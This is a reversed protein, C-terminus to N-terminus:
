KNKREFILYKALEIVTLNMVALVVILGFESMSPPSLSLLEQLPPVTLSAILMVVSISLSVLLYKNSFLKIKWIPKHLNKISFSFFISDISLAIFMFTRIEEIPLKLYLLFFYLLMLIVGTTIAIIMILKKLNPTLISKMSSDRPDRKMLDDEKPEFAFAFNMFGEELINTWLIQAPLLPLPAGIILAGGVVFIESFSTSLLYAVIKKLNDLIRRGEEISNVIVNFGNNILVMDSAEKAVETGSGLAIGIDASRLAPADNIGDGTMAVIQGDSKLLKAIRLKQSPLVRAFVDTTKLANLLENDNLESIDDGLLVKTGERKIGAEQAIKGATAPNDGTLMIVRAGADQATKISDAVDARIPDHLIVFGAFVIDELLADNNESTPIKEWKVDKYAVGILRLGESSKKKQVLEMEKRVKETIKTKKKDIYLFRAKELLLEPSGSMFVRNIGSKKTVNLSAVLRSKSEFPLFDVRHQTKLLDEQNVGSELGALIIAKEVPRGRVVWESLAEGEGEVFADSTLIAMNLVDREDKIVFHEIDPKKIKSKLSNYTFVSAVRMEAMTLTGTKDTLITTTSGLTEAALLNRVLGGRKLIEEMGLALVVTVAAPLGEPMVAVALAIGVLLMESFSEGRIIGLFLIILVSALTFKALFTALKKISKQLPTQTNEKYALDKAVEGIQTKNGIEVVIGKATGASVLTGMWLMNLQGTIHTKEDITESDKIVNVWEGTLAAENISLNKQEVIRIDAPIYMGGEIFIIDGQILDEAKIVVKKNDRIVTAFKEQSQVLKKFALSARKEQFVGVAVNILVAVIIVIADLYESLLLTGIGAIILIFVLPSKIQKVVRDFFTETKLEKFKNKGNKKQSIAIKEKELGSKINTNLKKEIERTSIRYWQTTKINNM